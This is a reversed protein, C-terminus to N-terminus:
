RSLNQVDLILAIRGDELITAGAYERLHELPARLPKVVVDRKGLVADVVLGTPRDHRRYLLAPHSRAAGNRAVAPPDGMAERLYLLEVTEDGVQQIPVGAVQRIEGPVAEFTRRINRVPV